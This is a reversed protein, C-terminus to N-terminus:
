DWSAGDSCLAMILHIAAISAVCYVSAQREVILAGSEADRVRIIGDRHGTALHSRKSVRSKDGTQADLIKNAENDKNLAACSTAARM